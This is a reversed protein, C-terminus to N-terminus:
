NDWSDRLQAIRRIVYDLVEGKVRGSGGEALKVTHEFHGMTTEVVDSQDISVNSLDHARRHNTSLITRCPPAVM